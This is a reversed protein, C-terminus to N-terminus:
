HKVGIWCYMVRYDNLFLVLAAVAHYVYPLFPQVIEAGLDM